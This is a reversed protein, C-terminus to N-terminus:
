GSLRWDTDSRVVLGDHQERPPECRSATKSANKRRSTAEKM